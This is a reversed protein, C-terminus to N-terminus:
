IWDMELGVLQVVTTAHWLKKMGGYIQQFISAKNIRMTVNLHYLTYSNVEAEVYPHM